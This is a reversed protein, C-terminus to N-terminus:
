GLFVDPHGKRSQHMNIKGEKEITPGPAALGSGPALLSTGLATTLLLSLTKRRMTGEEEHDSVPLDLSEEECLHFLM